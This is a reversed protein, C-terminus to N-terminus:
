QANVERATERSHCPKCLSEFPGAYFTAVDGRHPVKHHVETAPVYDGRELHWACWPFEALHAARLGLWRSSNYLRQRAPDRV